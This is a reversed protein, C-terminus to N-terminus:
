LNGAPVDPRQKPHENREERVQSSHPERTVSPNGSDSQRSDRTWTESRVSRSRRDAVLIRNSAFRRKVWRASTLRLGLINQVPEHGRRPRSM